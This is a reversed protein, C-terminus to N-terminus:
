LLSKNMYSRWKTEKAATLFFNVNVALTMVNFMMSCIIFMYWTYDKYFTPEKDERMLQVVVTSTVPVILGFVTALPFGATLKVQGEEVRSAILLDRFYLRASYTEFLEETTPETFV